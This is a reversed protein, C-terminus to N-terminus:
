RADRVEEVAWAAFADLSCVRVVLEDGHRYSVVAESWDLLKRVTREPGSRGRYTAGVRIEAPKM